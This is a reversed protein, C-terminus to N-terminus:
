SDFPSSFFYCVRRSVLVNLMKLSHIAMMNMKFNWHKFFKRQKKKVDVYTYSKTYNCYCDIIKIKNEVYKGFKFFFFKM